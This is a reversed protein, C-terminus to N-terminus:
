EASVAASAAGAAEDGLDERKRLGQQDRLNREPQEQEAVVATGSVVEV